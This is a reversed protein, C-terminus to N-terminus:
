QVKEYTDRPARYSDWPALDLHELADILAGAPLGIVTTPDGDIRRVLGTGRGQVAYAGARGQWEGQDLYWERHAATVDRFTVQSADSFVECSTATMLCVGTVVTHTRGSLLMLMAQADDRDAPKGLMRQDIVVATDAGLVAGGEPIGARNVVDEAKARAHARALEDPSLGPIDEEGYGSVM